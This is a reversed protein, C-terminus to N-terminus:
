DKTRESDVKPFWKRVRGPDGREIRDMLFGAAFGVGAALLVNILDIQYNMREPNILMIAPSIVPMTIRYKWEGAIRKLGETFVQKEPGAM